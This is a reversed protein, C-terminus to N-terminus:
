FYVFNARITWYIFSYPRDYCNRCNFTLIVQTFHCFSAVRCKGNLVISSIHYCVSLCKIRRISIYMTMLLLVNWMHTNLLPKIYSRSTHSIRTELFNHNNLNHLKNRYVKKKLYLRVSYYYEFNRVLCLNRSNGFKGLKVKCYLWVTIM